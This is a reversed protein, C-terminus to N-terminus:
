NKIIQVWNDYFHAMGAGGPTPSPSNCPKLSLMLLWNDFHVTPNIVQRAKNDAHVRVIYKFLGIFCLDKRMNPWFDLCKGGWKMSIKPKNGHVYSGIIPGQQSYVFATYERESRM